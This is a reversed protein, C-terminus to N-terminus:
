INNHFYYLVQTQSDFFYINYNTLLTHGTELEWEESDIYFYDELDVTGRDFDYNVVIERSPDNDKMTEIWKEFDDLHKNIADLDTEQIRKLYPNGALSSTTFYYKGYDTYDQFGGSTYFDYNEYEGVSAVVRDTQMGCATLFLVTALVWVMLKSMPSWKLPHRSKGLLSKM